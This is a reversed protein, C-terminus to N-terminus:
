IRSGILSINVFRRKILLFYIDGVLEFYKQYNSFDTDILETFSPIFKYARPVIPILNDTINHINVCNRRDHKFFNSPRWLFQSIDNLICDTDYDDYHSKDTTKPTEPIFIPTPNM